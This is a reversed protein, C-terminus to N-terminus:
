ESLNHNDRKVNSILIKANEMYNLKDKESEEM